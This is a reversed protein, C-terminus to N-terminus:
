LKMWRQGPSWKDVPTVRRFREATEPEEARLAEVDTWPLDYQSRSLVTVDKGPREPDEIVVRQAGGARAILRNQLLRYRRERDKMRKYADRLARATTPSARFVTEPMFQNLTCLAGTSFPTWDVAPPKRRELRDLFALAETIMFKIDSEAQETRRLVYVVTRWPVMFQVPMIVTDSGWVAM